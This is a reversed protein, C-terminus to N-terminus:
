VAVIMGGLVVAVSTGAEGVGSFVEVGIGVADNVAVDVDVGWGVKVAVGM